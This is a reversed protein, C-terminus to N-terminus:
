CDCVSLAVAKNLIVVRPNSPPNPFKRLILPFSCLVENCVFMVFKDMVFPIVYM